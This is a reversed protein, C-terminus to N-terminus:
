VKKMKKIAEKKFEEWDFNEMAEQTVKYSCFKPGCM